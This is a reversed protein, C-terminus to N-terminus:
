CHDQDHGSERHDTARSPRRRYLQGLRISSFQDSLDSSRPFVLFVGLNVVVRRNIGVKLSVMPTEIVDFTPSNKSRLDSIQEQFDTVTNLYLEDKQALAYLYAEEKSRM